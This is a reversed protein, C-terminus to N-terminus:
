IRKENEPFLDTPKVLDESPDKACFRLSDRDYMSIFNIKMRRTSNWQLGWQGRTDFESSMNMWQTNQRVVPESGGGFRRRWMTRDLTEEKLHAYGRRDKLDNM